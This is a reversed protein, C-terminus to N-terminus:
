KWADSFASTSLYSELLLNLRAFFPELAERIYNPISSYSSNVQWGTNRQFDLVYLNLMTAMIFISPFNRSIEEM